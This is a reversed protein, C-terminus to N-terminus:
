HGRAPPLQPTRLSGHCSAPLLVAAPLDESTYTDLWYRHWRWEYGFWRLFRVHLLGGSNRYITGWFFISKNRWEKPILHQNALLYDLVNANLVPQEALLKRLEHGQISGVTQQEALCLGVKTSNWELQGGKRHEVVQWSEPCFPDADCDIVDCDIVDCDIIDKLVITEATGDLLPKIQALLDGSSLKKVLAPTFGNREFAHDLEAAQRASMIFKDSM